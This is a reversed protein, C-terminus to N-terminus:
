SRRRKRTAVNSPAVLLAELTDVLHVAFQEDTLLLDGGEEIHHAREGLLTTFVVSYTVLRERRVLEPLSRAAMREDLMTLVRQMVPTSPYVIGARLNRSLAPLLEPIIRVCDRGAQTTLTAVEPPVVAEVIERIDPPRNRGELRGLADAVEVDVTRQYRV